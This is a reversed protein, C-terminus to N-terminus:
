KSEIEFLALEDPRLQATTGVWHSNAASTTQLLNGGADYYKVEYGGASHLWLSLDSQVSLANTQKDNNLVIVLMKDKLQYGRVFAKLPQDLVSDGIFTGNVFYPLFKQRLNAVQSLAAALEPKDSILATGNPQDPKRPMVNLFLNDAFCKKVVLSSAEVDCNLRPTRLVSTIPAADEYDVWNWTYDLVQSDFELNSVSEGSFTSQPYQARAHKRVTDITALLGPRGGNQAKAAFVDWSFSTLGKDIWAGLGAIVDQEWV